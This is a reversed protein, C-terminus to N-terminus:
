ILWDILWENLWDIFWVALWEILWDTLWNILSDSLLDVTLSDTLWHTMSDTRWDTWGETLWETWRCIEGDPLCASLGSILWDALCTPFRGQKPWFNALTIDTPSCPRRLPSLPEGGVLTDWTRNGSGPWIHTSNTTPETRQESLTKEPYEPKGRKEFVLM